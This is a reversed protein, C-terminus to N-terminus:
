KKTGNLRGWVEPPVKRLRRRALRPRYHPEGNVQFARLMGGRVFADLMTQVTGRDLRSRDSVEALSLRGHRLFLKLVENESPSLDVLDLSSLGRQERQLQGFVGNM